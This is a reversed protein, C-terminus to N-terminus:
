SEVTWTGTVHRALWDNNGICVLEVSECEDDASIYKNDTQKAGSIYVAGAAGPDIRLEQAAAVTFHFFDGQEADQPLTLAIAGSAGLNTFLTGSQARTLTADATKHVVPQSTVYAAKLGKHM